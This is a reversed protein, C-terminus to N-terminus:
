FGIQRRFYRTLRDNWHRLRAFPAHFRMEGASQCIRCIEPLGKAQLFNQRLKLAREGLWIERITHRNLDGLVVRGDYDLCCLVMRGDALIVAQYFPLHCYRPPCLPPHDASFGAFAHMPRYRITMSPHIDVLDNGLLHRRQLVPGPYNWDMGRRLHIAKVMAQVSEAFSKAQRLTEITRIGNLRFYRSVLMDIELRTPPPQDIIFEMWRSIKELYEAYNMRGPKRYAAFSAPDGTQWSLTIQKFRIPKLQDLLRDSAPSGNTVLEPLLGTTRQNYDLIEPLDPHLTPEGMTHFLLNCRLGLDRVQDLIRFALHKDMMTLPRKM